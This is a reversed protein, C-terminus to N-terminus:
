NTFMFVSRLDMDCMRVFSVQTPPIHHPLHQWQLSSLPRYRLHLTTKPGQVTGEWDEELHLHWTVIAVVTSTHVSVNVPADPPGAPNYFIILLYM